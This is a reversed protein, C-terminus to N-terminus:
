SNIGAKVHKMYHEINTQKKDDQFTTKYLNSCATSKLDGPVFKRWTKFLTKKISQLFCILNNLPLLAFEYTLAGHLIRNLIYNDIFSTTM